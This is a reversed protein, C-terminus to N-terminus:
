TSVEMLADRVLKRTVNDQMTVWDLNDLKNNKSNGDLHDVTLYKADERPKFTYMVMRHIKETTKKSKRNLNIKYYGDKRLQLKLILGSKNRVRGWTSVEYNDNFPYEKWVENM